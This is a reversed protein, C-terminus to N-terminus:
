AHGERCAGLADGAGEARAVERRIRKALNEAAKPLKSPTDVPPVMAGVPILVDALADLTRSTWFRASM